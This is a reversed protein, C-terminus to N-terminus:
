GPDRLPRPRFCARTNELFRLLANTRSACRLVGCLRKIPHGTQDDFDFCPTVSRAANYRPCDFLVHNVTQPDHRCECASSLTREAHFRQNYKGTFAHGTLFHFLTSEAERTPKDGPKSKAIAKLGQCLKGDPPGRLVETYTHSTREMAHWQNSWETIAAKKSMIHVADISPTDVFNPPPLTTAHLKALSRGRKFGPPQCTAPAWHLTIKLRPFISLLQDTINQFSISVQQTPHPGLNAIRSISGANNTVIVIHDPIARHSAQWEVLITQAMAAASEIAHAGILNGAM